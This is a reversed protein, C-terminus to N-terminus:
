RPADAAVGAPSFRPANASEVTRNVCGVSPVALWHQIGVSSERVFGTFNM